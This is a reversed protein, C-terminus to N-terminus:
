GASARLFREDGDDRVAIFLETVGGVVLSIGAAIALAGITIGPWALALGGAAIWGLAALRALSPRSSEGADVLGSIGTVLLAVAVLRALVSLSRFPEATLAVGVAVCVAGLLLVTWWPLRDLLGTTRATLRARPADDPM